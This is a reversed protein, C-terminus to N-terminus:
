YKPYSFGGGRASRTSYRAAGALREAAERNSIHTSCKRLVESCSGKGSNNQGSGRGWNQRTQSGRAPHAAGTYGHLTAAHRLVLHDDGNGHCVEAAIVAAAM